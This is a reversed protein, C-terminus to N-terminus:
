WAWNREGLKKKECPIEGRERQEGGVMMPVPVIGCGYKRELPVALRSIKGKPTLTSVRVACVYRDALASIRVHTDWSTQSLVNEFVVM